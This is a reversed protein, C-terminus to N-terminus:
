MGSLHKIRALEQLEPNQSTTQQPAMREVMKRAVQEAQEGFKKGVMVAVGEPGKPFTNSQKDYFSHIFEAVEQVNMGRNKALTDKHSINKFKEKDLDKSSVKWDGGQAKRQAAPIDKKNPGQEVGEYRDYDDYDDGQGEADDWIKQDIFEVADPGLDESNIEVSKGNGIVSVTADDIEPHEEPSGGHYGWTAPQYSGSISYDIGLNTILYVNSVPSADDPEITSAMEALEDGSLTPTIDAKGILIRTVQVSGDQGRQFEVVASETEYEVELDFGRAESLEM